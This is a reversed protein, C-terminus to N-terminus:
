GASSPVPVGDRQEPRTVTWSGRNVGGQRSEPIDTWSGWANTGAKQRYQCKGNYDVDCIYHMAVQGDGARLRFGWPKKPRGSYYDSPLTLSVSVKQGDTWGPNSTPWNWEDARSANSNRLAFSATGVQLTAVSKLSSPIDGNVKVYVAGSAQAWYLKDVRYELGDWFFNDDSLVLSCNDQSADTNDCGAFGTIADVTLTSSWVTTQAQAPVAAFLGLAGLM